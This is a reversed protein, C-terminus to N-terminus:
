SFDPWQVVLRCPKGADYFGASSWPWDLPDSVLGRRVPNANVYTIVTRLRSGGIIWSFYGGGPHWFRRVQRSGEIRLLRQHAKPHYSRMYELARHSFPQKISRLVSGANIPTRSQLLLHVHNPMIVYAWVSYNLRRRSTLISQVLLECLAADRLLHRRDLCSFTLFLAANDPVYPVKPM